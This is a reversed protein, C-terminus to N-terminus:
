RQERLEAEVKARWPDQPSAPAGDAAAHAPPAASMRRTVLVVAVGGLLLAAVPLIWVLADFGKAPPAALIMEGYKDLYFEIIQDETKGQRLMQRIEVLIADCAASRHTAVTQIWCCPATLRNAIKAVMQDEASTRASPPQVPPEAAWSLASLLLLACGISQRM